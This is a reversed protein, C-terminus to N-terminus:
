MIELLCSISRGIKIIFQFEVRERRDNINPITRAQISVAFPSRRRLASSRRYGEQVLAKAFHDLPTRPGGILVQTPRLQHTGSGKLTPRSDM